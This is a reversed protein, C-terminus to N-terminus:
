NKPDEIATHGSNSCVSHLMIGFYTKQVVKLMNLTFSQDFLVDVIIISRDFSAYLVFNTRAVNLMFMGLQVQGYYKHRRKLSLNGNKLELYPAGGAAVVSFITEAKGKFPCKIELLECPIGHDFIVGDPSYALWPNDTSIVLGTEIM